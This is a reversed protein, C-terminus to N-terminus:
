NSYRTSYSSIIGAEESKGAPYLQVNKLRCACEVSYQVRTVRVSLLQVTVSVRVLPLSVAPNTVGPIRLVWETNSHVTM